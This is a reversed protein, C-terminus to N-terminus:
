STFCLNSLHLVNRSTIIIERIAQCVKEFSEKHAKELAAQEEINEECKSRWKDPNNCYNRRCLLHYKAECSFLNFGSIRRLLEYDEKAEAYKVVTEGGGREFYKTDESTWLGKVKM